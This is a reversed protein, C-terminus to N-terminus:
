RKRGREAEIWARVAAADVGTERALRAAVWDRDTMDAGDRAMRWLAATLARREAPSPWPGTAGSPAARGCVLGLKRARQYAADAGKGPVADGMERRTRLGAAVADRLAARAARDMLDLAVREMATDDSGRQVGRERLYDHARDQPRREPDWGFVRRADAAVAESSDGSAAFGIGDM